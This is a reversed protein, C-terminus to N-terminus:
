DSLPTQGKAVEYVIAWWAGRDMSNELCSFQLPYGNREGPFRGLGPILSPDGASCASEKGESGGVTVSVKGLPRLKQSRGEYETLYESSNPLAPASTPDTPHNPSITVYYTMMENHFGVCVHQPLLSTQDIINFSLIESKPIGQGDMWPNPSQAEMAWVQPQDRPPSRLDWWRGPTALFFIESDM